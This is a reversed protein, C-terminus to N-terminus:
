VSNFEGTCGVRVAIISLLQTATFQGERASAELLGMRHLAPQISLSGSTPHILPPRFIPRHTLPITTSQNIPQNIPKSSLFLLPICWVPKRECPQPRASINYCWLPGDASLISYKRILGALVPPRDQGTFRDPLTKLTLIFLM